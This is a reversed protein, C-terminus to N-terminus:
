RPVFGHGNRLGHHRLTADLDREDGPLQVDGVARDDREDLPVAGAAVDPARAHADHVGRDLLGVLAPALDRPGLDVGALLGEGLEVVPQGVLGDLGEALEEDADLARERRRDAAADPGQVDRQALEEVEVDTQTRDAPELAHRRRHLVRLLDVHHDEALVGLVDVRADLELAPGLVRPLHEGLRPGRRAAGERPAVGDPVRAEALPDDEESGEVIGTVRTHGVITGEM